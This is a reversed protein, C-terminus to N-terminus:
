LEGAPPQTRRQGYDKRRKRVTASLDISVEPLSNYEKRHQWWRYVAHIAYAAIAITAGGTLTIAGALNTSASAKEEDTSQENSQVANQLLGKITSNQPPLSRRRSLNSLIQFLTLILFIHVSTPTADNGFVQLFLDSQVHILVIFVSGNTAQLESDQPSLTPSPPAVDASSPVALEASNAKLEVDVRAMTDSRGTSKSGTSQLLRLSLWYRFRRLPMHIELIIFSILLRMIHTWWDRALQSEAPDRGAARTLSNVIVIMAFNTFQLFLVAILKFTMNRIKTAMLPPMVRCLKIGYITFGVSYALWLTAFFTYEFTFFIRWASAYHIIHIGIIRATFVLSSLATVFIFILKFRRLFALSILVEEITLEGHYNSNVKKMMDRQRLAKMTKQYLEAWHILMGTFLIIYLFDVFCYFGHYVGFPMIGYTGWWDLSCKLFIFFCIIGNIGLSFKVVRRANPIGNASLTSRHKFELFLRWFILSMLIFGLSACVVRFAAVGNEQDQLKSHTCLHTLKTGNFVPSLWAGFCRCTGDTQCKGQGQCDTCPITQLQGLTPVLLFFLVIFISSAMSTIRSKVNTLTGILHASTWPGSRMKHTRGLAMESLLMNLTQGLSQLAATFVAHAIQPAETQMKELNLRSLEFVTVPGEAEVSLLVPSHLFMANIGVWTGQLIKYSREKQGDLDTRYLGMEGSKIYYMSDPSDGPKLLTEGLVLTRKTFYRNAVSSAQEKTCGGQPVLNALLVHFSPVYDELPMKDIEETLQTGLHKVKSKILINECWELALDLNEYVRPMGDETFVGRRQFTRLLSGTMGTFITTVSHHTCMQVVKKFSACASSDVGPVRSFDILLYRIKKSRKRKDLGELIIKMKDNINRINFSSRRKLNESVEPSDMEITGLETSDNDIGRYQSGRGFGFKSISSAFKSLGGKREEKKETEEKLQKKIYGHVDVASGFFIYNQLQLVLMKGQYHQLIKRQFYPRQVKSQIQEGTFSGKIPKIRAYQIAFFVASIGISIPLGTNNGFIIITAATSVLLAYEFKPLSWFPLVFWGWLLNFGNFLLVTGFFFKPIVDTLPFEFLFVALYFLVLFIGLLRNCGQKFGVTTLAITISGAFGVSLGSAISGVGAVYMERKGDMTRNIEFELGNIIISTNLIVLLAMAITNTAQRPILNWQINTFSFHTWISYFPVAETSQFIFGMDQLKSVDTKTALAVIWFLTLPIFLFAPMFLIHKKFRELVFLGSALAFGICALLVKRNTILSVFDQFDDLPMDSMMTIAGKLLFISIASLFGAMVPYPIYQICVIANTYAMIIYALGILISTLSICFLLTPLIVDDSIAHDAIDEAILSLFMVNAVMIGVVSQVVASLATAAAQNIAHTVVMIKIAIPFYQALKSHTTIISAYSLTSPLVILFLILATLANVAIMRFWEKYINQLPVRKEESIGVGKLDISVYTPAIPETESDHGSTRDVIPTGSNDSPEEENKKTQEEDSSAGEDDSPSIHQVRLELDALENLVEFKRNGRKTEPSMALVPSAFEWKEKMQRTHDALLSSFSSSRLESLPPIRPPPPLAPPNPVAEESMPLDEDLMVNQMLDMSHRSMLTTGQEERERKKKAIEVFHRNWQPSHPQPSAVRRNKPATPTTPHSM